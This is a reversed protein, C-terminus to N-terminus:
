KLSSKAFGFSAATTEQAIRTLELALRLEDLDNYTAVIQGNERRWQGNIVAVLAQADWRITVPFKTAAEARNGIVRAM